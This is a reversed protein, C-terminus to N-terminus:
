IHKWSRGTRIASIQSSSLGYQEMLKTGPLNSHKITFAQEKTIKSTTSYDRPKAHYKQYSERTRKRSCARCRRSGDVFFTNDESFLHGNKCHTKTKQFSNHMRGKNAADEMNDKQTGIFLHSPNVCPPNDCKHCVMLGDSIQGVNLEYSIRAAVIKKRSGPISRSGVLLLGRGAKGAPGTWIWCEDGHGKKVYSWFRESVPKPKPGTKM